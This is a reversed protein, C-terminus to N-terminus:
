NDLEPFLEFEPAKESEKLNNTEQPQSVLKEVKREIKSLDKLHFPEEAWTASVFDPLYDCLEDFSPANVLKVKISFLHDNFETNIPENLGLSAPLNVQKLKNNIPM